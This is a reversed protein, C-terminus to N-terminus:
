RVIASIANALEANVIAVANVNERHLASRLGEIIYIDRAALRRKLREVYKEPALADVLVLKVSGQREVIIDEGYLVGGARQALGIYSALKETM